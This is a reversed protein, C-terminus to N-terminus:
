IVAEMELRFDIVFQGSRDHKSHKRLSVDKFFPSSDLRAIYEALVVEPPPDQSFAYGTLVLHNRQGDDYLDYLDLKITGPTIRSLEKLNLHLFTPERNLKELIAQDAVMQRKLRTYMGYSASSKFLEMQQNANALRGTEIAIQYKVSAWFGLLALAFTMVAPVAMRIFRKVARNEKIKPPLFSILDYETMSLAVAGLSVPIQDASDKMLFRKGARQTLPLRKFQIGIRESLTAILEDSYCLDGYLFIMETSSGPFQGVYYDLSNQIESTLNETAEDEDAALGSGITLSESGVSSTHAFQLRTGQYYNIETIERKINVLIYTRDSHFNDMFPLFCGIAELEHHAEDVDIELSELLELRTDVAKKLVAVLFASVTGDVATKVNENFRQGYYANELGFPIRKNGEWYIAKILERRPMDPLTIVRFVSDPGSIGLIFKTLPREFEKVYETIRDILFSTRKESTDLTRPLYIKTVDILRSQHWFRRATAMQLSNEDFLIAVTRGIRYRENLGLRRAVGIVWNRIARKIESM